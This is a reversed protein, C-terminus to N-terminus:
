DDKENIIYETANGNLKVRQLSLLSCLSTVSFNFSTNMWEDKTAAVVIVASSCLRSWSSICQFNDYKRIIVKSLTVCLASVICKTNRQLEKKIITSFLCSKVTSGFNLSWQPSTTIPVDNLPLTVWRSIWHPIIQHNWHCDHSKHARGFANSSCMTIQVMSIIKVKFHLSFHLCHTYSRQFFFYNQHHCAEVLFM